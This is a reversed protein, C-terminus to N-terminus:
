RGPGFLKEVGAVRETVVLIALCVVLLMMSTAAALRIDALTQVQERIAMVITSVRGGGLMAPTIFFGLAMTFVLMSGAVIGPLSLPVYVRWFVARPRAGLSLAARMYAPDIARLTPVLTMVMFPLLIHVMGIYVGTQNYVLQLPTDILRAAMLLNNVIGNRQLIIIWSFTRALVSIWLALVLVTVMARTLATQLHALLYAIPYAIVLCLLTVLCALVLTYWLLRLYLPTALAAYGALSWGDDGGFSMWLLILVPAVFLLLIALVPAILLLINIRTRQEEWGRGAIRIVPLTKMRNALATM